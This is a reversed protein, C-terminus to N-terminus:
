QDQLSDYQAVLNCESFLFKFGDHMVINNKSETPDLVHTFTRVSLM